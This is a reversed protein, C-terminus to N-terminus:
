IAWTIGGLIKRGYSTYGHTDQFNKNLVNDINIWYNVSKEKKIALSISFITYSPLTTKEGTFANRDFRQGKYKSNIDFVINDKIQYQVITKIEKTPIKFSRVNSPQDISHTLGFLMILSIEKKISYKGELEHRKVNTKGHNVYQQNIFDIKNSIKTQSYQYSLFFNEQQSSLKIQYKKIEENKLNLNSGWPGYLELLTPEKYIITYNPSLKIKNLLFITPSVATMMMPNSSKLNLENEIKLSYINKQFNHSSLIKNVDLTIKKNQYYSKNISHQNYSIDFHSFFYQNFYAPIIIGSQLKSGSYKLSSKNPLVESRKETLYNVYPNIALLKFLKLDAHYIQADYIINRAEQDILDWPYNDNTADIETDSNILRLHTNLKGLNLFKNEAKVSFNKTVLSDKELNTNPINASSIGNERYLAGDIAVCSGSNFIKNILFSSTASHYTGGGLLIHRDSKQCSVPIINLSGAPSSSSSDTVEVTKIGSSLFPSLNSSGGRSVDLILGDYSITSYRTSLGNLNIQSISSHQNDIGLFQYNLSSSLPTEKKPIIEKNSNEKIYPTTSIVIIENSIAAFPAAFILSTLISLICFFKNDM